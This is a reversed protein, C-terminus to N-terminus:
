QVALSATAASLVGGVKVVLPQSNGSPTNNSLQINLQLVGDLLTPAAGAFSVMVPQGGVTVSVDPPLYKLISGNVSGTAGPPTTQGGGTFYITVYSGKAAPGSLGNLSGDQNTAAAQGSGTSNFTFVGPASNAVQVTTAASAVGQYQVTMMLQSQGAVEYPVIANIQTASTYMIPAAFSGFLVRTGSLTSAVTGTNPDISFSVAPTPGLGNGKITIIEGPAIAGTAGSASNTISSVMVTSTAASVTLTVLISQPSNSSGPASVTITGTYMTPNLSLPNVSVTLASGSASLNLWSANSTPTWSLWGGGANSITISQSAPNTGGVTYFFQLHSSSLSIAPPLAAPVTMANVSHQGNTNSVTFRVLGSYASPLYATIQQDSIQSISLAAGNATLQTATTTGFGVGSLVVTSGSAITLGSLGTPTTSQVYSILPGFKFLLARPGGALLTGTATTPQGISHSMVFNQSGAPVFEDYFISAIANSPGSGLQSTGFQVTTLDRFYVDNSGKLALFTGGYTRLYPDQSPTTGISQWDSTDALFSRVIRATWHSSTDIDAIGHSTTCSMGFPTFFGPTTHCYPVIRTRQDPRAFDLSGSTLSVVGDAANKTTGWTGANGVVALADVGRLDDQGQNWTALDWLVQNGRVMEAEQVGLDSAQFSGFHPTAIAIFKHVKPNAPPAFSGSVSGKGSLYARVILGGMSHAVLDVQTVPTGDTYHLGAIYVNLYSALQEISPVGPYSCNNFFLVPVGDYQQLLSALQGFTDMSAAVTSAPNVFLCSAQWGNLLIVPVRGPTAAASVMMENVTVPLTASISRENEDRGNVEITYEGAPTTPPVVINLSRAGAQRVVDVRIPYPLTPPTRVSTISVMRAGPTTWVASRSEGAVVRIPELVAPSDLGQGFAVGCLNLALGAVAFWVSFFYKV